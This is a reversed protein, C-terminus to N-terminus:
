DINQEYIIPAWPSNKQNTNVVILHRFKEMVFLLYTYIQRKAEENDSGLINIKCGYEEGSEKKTLKNGSFIKVSVTADKKHEMPTHFKILLVTSEQTYAVDLINPKAIEECKQFEAMDEGGFIQRFACLQCSNGICIHDTANIEGITGKKTLMDFLFIKNLVSLDCIQDKQIKMVFKHNKMGVELYSIKVRPPSNENRNPNLGADIIEVLEGLIEKLKPYLEINVGPIQIKGRQFIKIKFCIDDTLYEFTISSGFYKGNGQKKRTNEAQEMKKRGRSKVKHKRNKISDYLEKDYYIEEYNSGILQFNRTPKYIKINKNDIADANELIGNLVIAAANTKTFTNNEQALPILLKEENEPIILNRDKNYEIETPPVIIEAIEAANEDGAFDEFLIDYDM